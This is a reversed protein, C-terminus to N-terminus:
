EDVNNVTDCCVSVNEGDGSKQKRFSDDLEKLAASQKLAFYRKAMESDAGGPGNCFKFIENRRSIERM